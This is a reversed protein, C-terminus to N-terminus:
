IGFKGYRAGGRCQPSMLNAVITGHFKTYEGRGKSNSGRSRSLDPVTRVPGAASFIRLIGCPGPLSIIRPTVGKSGRLAAVFLPIRLRRALPM